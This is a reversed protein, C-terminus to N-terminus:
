APRLLVLHGLRQRVVKAARELADMDDLTALALARVHQVDAAEPAAEPAAAAKLEELEALAADLKTQVDTLEREHALDRRGETDIHWNMVVHAATEGPACSLEVKGFMVACTKGTRQADEALMVAVEAVGTPYRGSKDFYASVSPVPAVPAVPAAEAAAEAAAKVVRAVVAAAAKEHQAMSWGFGVTYGGPHGKRAPHYKLQLSEWLNVSLEVNAPPAKWHDKNRMFPYLPALDAWLSLIRPVDVKVNQSVVALESALRALEALDAPDAKRHIAKELAWLAAEHKEQPTVEPAPAAPASM